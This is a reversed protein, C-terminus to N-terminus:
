AGRRAPMVVPTAQAEVDEDCWDARGLWEGGAASGRRACRGARIERAVFREGKHLYAAITKKTMWPSPVPPTM